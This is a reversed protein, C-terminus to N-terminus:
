LIVIKTKTVKNAKTFSGVKGRSVMEDGADSSLAVSSGDSNAENDVIKEAEVSNLLTDLSPPSICQMKISPLNNQAPLSNLVSNFTGTNEKEKCAALFFCVFSKSMVNEINIDEM